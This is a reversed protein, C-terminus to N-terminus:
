KLGNRFRWAFRVTDRLRKVRASIAGMEFRHFTRETYATYYSAFGLSVGSACEADSPAPASRYTKMFAAAFAGLADARDPNLSPQAMEPVSDSYITTYSVAAAFYAGLPTLHVDDSFIAKMRAARDLGEFGAAAPDAALREVLSALALSTPIFQIRDTRGDAALDQNVQGVLCQWVPLARTEYAVWESPDTPDSLSIWPAYFYTKGGPNAAIFRDQYARLSQVSNQWILADLVRHQETIIMVDDAQGSPAEVASREEGKAVDQPPANAFVQQKDELRQLISSGPLSHMNWQLSIGDAASMQQLFDPFPRDTLSHGSVFLRRTASKAAAEAPASVPRSEEAAMVPTGIALAAAIGRTIVTRRVSM